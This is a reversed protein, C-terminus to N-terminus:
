ADIERTTVPAPQAAPKTTHLWHQGARVEYDSCQMKLTITDQEFDAEAIVCPWAVPEQVTQTANNQEDAKCPGGECCAYGGNGYQCEVPEQVPPAPKVQKAIWEILSIQDRKWDVEDHTYGFRECLLRHFNEFEHDSDQVPASRAKRIANIAKNWGVLNEVSFDVIQMSELAELVTQLAKREITVHTMATRESNAPAEAKSSM